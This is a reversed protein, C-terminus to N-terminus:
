LTVTQLTVRKRGHPQQRLVQTAAQHGRKLSCPLGVELGGEGALYWQMFEELDDVCMKLYQIVPIKYLCKIKATKTSGM